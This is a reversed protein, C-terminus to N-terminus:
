FMAEVKPTRSIPTGSNPCNPAQEVMPCVSASAASNTSLPLASKHPATVELWKQVASRCNRNGSSYPPWRVGVAWHVAVAAPAQTTPHSPPTPTSLTHKPLTHSKPTVSIALIPAAIAGAAASVMERLGFTSAINQNLLDGAFLVQLRSKAVGAKDLARTLAERQLASEAQEWTDQGMRADAFIADFHRGLPGEGEKKGGVAAYSVIAPRNCFRITSEGVRKPM